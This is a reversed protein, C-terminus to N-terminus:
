QYTFHGIQHMSSLVADVLSTQHKRPLFSYTLRCQTSRFLTYSTFTAPRTDSNSSSSCIFWAKKSMYGGTPCNAEDFESPIALSGADSPNNLSNIEGQSLTDDSTCMVGRRQRRNKGAPINWLCEDDPVDAFLETYPENEFLGIDLSGIGDSSQSIDLNGANTATWDLDPNLLNPELANSALQLDPSLEFDSYRAQVAIFAILLSLGCSQFYPM